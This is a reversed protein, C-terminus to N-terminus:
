VAISVIPMGLRRPDRPASPPPELPRSLLTV